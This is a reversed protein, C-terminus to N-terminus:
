LCAYAFGECPVVSMRVTPYGHRIRGARLRSAFFLHARDATRLATRLRYGCETMAPALRNPSPRGVALGCACFKRARVVTRVYVGQVGCYCAGYFRRRGAIIHTSRGIRCLDRKVAPFIRGGFVHRIDSLKRVGKVLPM